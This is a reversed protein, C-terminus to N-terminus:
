GRGWRRGLAQFCALTAVGFGYAHVVQDYRPLYGALRMNYLVTPGSGDSFEPAWSRPVPVNGGAMHLLGWVALGWLLPATFGVRRHVVAAGGILVVMVAAYFVFEPNGGVVAWATFGVMYLAVFGALLPHRKIM